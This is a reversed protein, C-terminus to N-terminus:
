TNIKSESILFSIDSTKRNQKFLQYEIHLNTFNNIVNISEDIIRTKLNSWVKYESDDLGIFDRFGQISYSVQFSKNKYKCSFLEYLHLAYKSQLNHTLCLNILTKPSHRFEYLTEDSFQFIVTGVNREYKIFNFFNDVTNFRTNRFSRGQLVQIAEILGKYATSRDLGYLKSYIGINFIYENQPHAAEQYAFIALNFIRQEVLSMNHPYEILTDPKHIQM